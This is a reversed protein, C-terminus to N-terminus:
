ASTFPTYLELQYENIKHQLYWIQFFFTWIGSVDTLTQLSSSGPLERRVRTEFHDLLIRRVGFSLAIMGIGIALRGLDGALGQIAQPKLVAISLFALQAGGLLLPGAIGIKTSSELANFAARRRLFWIPIYLGLTILTLPIVLALHTKKLRPSDPVIGTAL